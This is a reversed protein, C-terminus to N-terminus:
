FGRYHPRPYNPDAPSNMPIVTDEAANEGVDHLGLNGVRGNKMGSFVIKTVIKGAVAELGNLLKRGINLSETTQQIANESLLLCDPFATCDDCNTPIEGGNNLCGENYPKNITM